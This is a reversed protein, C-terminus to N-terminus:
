CARLALNAYACVMAAAFVRRRHKTVNERAALFFISNRLLLLVATLGAQGVDGDSTQRLTQGLYHRMRKIVRWPTLLRGDTPVSLARSDMLKEFCGDPSLGVQPALAPILDLAQLLDADTNLQTYSLLVFSELWTVDELSHGLGTKGFDILFRNDKSDIMINDGHLDGHVFCMNHHCESAARLRALREHDNLLHLCVNPLELPHRKHFKLQRDVDAKEGLTLLLQTRVSSALNGDGPHKRWVKELVWASSMHLDSEIGHKGGIDKCLGLEDAVCFDTIDPAKTLHLRPCLTGFVFDVASELRSLVKGDTPNNSSEDFLETFSKPGNGGLDALSLHLAATKHLEAYGLVHPTFGGLVQNMHNTVNMEAEVEEELGMKIFTMAGHSMTNKENVVPVCFFKLASSWGKGIKKLKAGSVNRPLVLSLLHEQDESLKENPSDSELTIVLGGSDEVVNNEAAPHSPALWQMADTMNGLITVGLVEELHSVTNARSLEGSRGCSGCLHPTLAVREVVSSRLLDNCPYLVQELVGGCVLARPACQSFSFYFSSKSPSDVIAVVDDYASSDALLVPVASPDNKPPFEVILLQDPVLRVAWALMARLRSELTVQLKISDLSLNHLVLMPLTFDWKSHNNEESM